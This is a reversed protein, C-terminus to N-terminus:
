RGARPRSAAASRGRWRGCCRRGRMLYILNDSNVGGSMFGFLPQFAVILAGRDVGLPPRAAAGDPVPLRAAGDHRGDAGLARADARAPRARHRGAALKYPIAELVYYLPPNNTATLADGDGRATLQTRAVAEIAEQQLQSFPAPDHPEGVMGYFGIAGLTDDERRRSRARAPRRPSRTGREAVQAVYAYHANEDPVEFPPM